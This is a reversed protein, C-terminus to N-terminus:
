DTRARFSAFRRRSAPEDMSKHRTDSYAVIAAVEEAAMPHAFYFRQM